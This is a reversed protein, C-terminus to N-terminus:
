IGAEINLRMFLNNGTQVKTDPNQLKRYGIECNTKLRHKNIYYTVVGSMNQETIYEPMTRLGEDPTVIAYRLGFAFMSPLTYTTQVLYGNGVFVARKQTPTTTSTTIPNGVATRQGYETYVSLGSYKFIADAQFINASRQSFLTPGLQGRTRGMAENHQFNAGISLKPLPERLIDGEFYDGGNTFEGFPLIEARATYAFGAGKIVSQNRGDGSSIAGRLKVPFAGTIPRWFVQLGFDRDLTFASNVISRDIFELDASSIVRQRNGPLKTQGFGINLNPSFNWFVMADRVINSMDTDEVDMDRRAVSLQLNFTLQPHFLQGGFRIRLRRVALESSAISLDDTSVTNFVAWNQMRFRMNVKTTSDATRFIIGDANFDFSGASQTSAQAWAGQRMLISLLFLAFSFRLITNLKAGSHNPM